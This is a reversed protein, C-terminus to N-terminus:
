CSVTIKLFEEKQDDDLEMEASIAERIRYLGIGNKVLYKVIEFHCYETAYVLADYCGESRNLHLFQVINIHGCFAAYDMANVTCGESRNYHLFKVIELHGYEAAEDMTSETCGESRNEHLWKIVEIHGNLAASDMAESTCGESRNEHLWKVVELHFNLASRDIANTSCKAGIETLYKVSELKGHKSYQDFISEVDLFSDAAQYLMELLDFRQYIAICTIRPFGINESKLYKITESKFVTILFNMYVPKCLYWYYKRESNFNLVQKAGHEDM